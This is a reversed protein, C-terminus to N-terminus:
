RKLGQQEAAYARRQMFNFTLAAAPILVAAAVFFVKNGVTGVLILLVAVLVAFVFAASRLMRKRFRRTMPRATGAM